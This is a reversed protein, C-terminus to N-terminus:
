APAFRNCEHPHLSIASLAFFDCMPSASPNCKYLPCSIANIRRSAMATRRPLAIANAHPLTGPAAAIHGCKPARCFSERKCFGDASRSNGGPPPLRPPSTPALVFLSNLHSVILFLICYFLDFAPSILRPRGRLRNLM